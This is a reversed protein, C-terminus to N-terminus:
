KIASASTWTAQPADPWASGLPQLAIWTEALKGDEARYLQMGARSRAEGSQPDNWRFAFRFWARDGVFSHDYVVVRIGPRQKQVAAVEEAYAERTVTRDGAEDHRIYHPAVCDPVLDFRGEHWVSEWRDFLDRMANESM